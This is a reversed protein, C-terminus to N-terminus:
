ADSGGTTNHNQSVPEWGGGLARYLNSFNKLLEGKATVLQEEISFLTRQTDLVSLLDVLGAAYRQDALEAAEAAARVAEELAMIRKQSYQFSSLSREVESLAQLLISRYAIAAQEWQAERIAINERIRGSEFIPATLGSLLNAYISDIDFLDALNDSQADLSGTLQLTPYKGAKAVGLRSWAAELQRESSKVDPRQRLTEAPIGVSIADPPTPLQREFDPSSLLEDFAGPMEGALL